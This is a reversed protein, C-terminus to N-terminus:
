TFRLSRRLFMDCLIVRWRVDAGLRAVFPGHHTTPPAGVLGHQIVGDAVGVRGVHGSVPHTAETQESQETPAQKAPELVSGVASDLVLRQTWGLPLVAHRGWGGQAHPNYGGLARVARGDPVAQRRPRLPQSGAGPVPGCEWGNGVLAHHRRWPTPTGPNPNPTAGERDDGQEGKANQPMKQAGWDVVRGAIGPRRLYDSARPIAPCHNARRSPDSASHTIPPM